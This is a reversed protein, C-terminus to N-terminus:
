IPGGGGGHHGHRGAARTREAANNIQTGKSLHQDDHYINVGGTGRKKGRYDFYVALACVIVLPTLVILWAM